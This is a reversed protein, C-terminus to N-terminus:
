LEGAEKQAQIMLEQNAKSVILLQKQFDQSVKNLKSVQADVIELEQLLVQNNSISFLQQILFHPNAKFESLESDEAQIASPLHFTLGALLIAIKLTLKPANM